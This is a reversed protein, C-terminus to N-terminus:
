WFSLGKPKKGEAASRALHDARENWRHGEHGRVHNLDVDRGVRAANLAARVVDVLELNAKAKWREEAIEMAYMSDCRIVVREDGGYQIVWRLAELLATLEATNNSALLAGDWADSEPNIQVVGHSEETITGRGRGLGDDGQVIVIGWGARAEEDINMCSGDAYIHILKM